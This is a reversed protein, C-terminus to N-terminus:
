TTFKSESSSAESIPLLLTVKTGSGLTSELSIKGRNLETLEKCVALGLGTGKEGKTGSESKQNSMEFIEPIKEPAIGVGSDRVTLKVFDGSEVAAIEIKGGEPTFKLANSFLNRIILLVAQRDAFVWLEEEAKWITEINKAETLNLFGGINETALQQLSFREPSYPIQGTQSMAWNLLNDTQRKLTLASEEISHGMKLVRDTQGKKLLFAINKTLNQFSLLPTKFDHAIIAFLRDKTRNLKELQTNQREITKNKSQLQRYFFWGALLGLVLLVGITFILRIRENLLENEKEIKKLEYQARIWELNAAREGNYLTDRAEQFLEQFELAKVPNNEIKYINKFHQYIEALDFISNLAEAEKLAENFYKKAQKLSDLGLYAAGANTLFSPYYYVYPAEKHLELAELAYVLGEKLQGKKIFIDARNSLLLPLDADDFDPDKNFLERALELGKQYYFAASDLKGLEDYGTGLDNYVGIMDRKESNTEYIDKAELLYRLSLDLNLMGEGYIRSLVFKADALYLSDGIEEAMNQLDMGKRLANFYNMEEIDLYILPVLSLFASEKLNLNRYLRIAEERYRRSEKINGVFIYHEALMDVAYAFGERYNLEEALKLAENAAELGNEPFYYALNNLYDVKERGAKKSVELTMSDFAVSGTIPNNVSQGFILDPVHCLVLIISLRFLFGM